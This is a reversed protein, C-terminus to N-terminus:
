NGPEVYNSLMKIAAQAAADASRLRSELLSGPKVRVRQEDPPIESRVNRLTKELLEIDKGEYYKVESLLLRRDAAPITLRLQDRAEATVLRRRRARDVASSAARVQAMAVRAAGRLEDSTKADDNRDTLYDAFLGV